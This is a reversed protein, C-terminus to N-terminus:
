ANQMSKFEYGADEVAKKVMDPTVSGDCDISASQTSLTVEADAVGPVAKLAKTVRAVCHECAMGSVHVTKKMLKEEEKDSYDKLKVMTLRLANLGVCVSSLSMLLAGAMPTLRFGFSSFAGAAVPIFIVNYIFAWFLNEKINAMTRRSMLLANACDGLNGKLLVVQCSEVAIDSTGAIGIGAEATAIAVSDNVGDGVMVAHEGQEELQRIIAAKDQPLLEARFDEIGLQAAVGEAVTRRDGTLMVPRVGMAKLDAIAQKASPRIEDAIVVEGAIKGDEIVLMVAQGLKEHVAIFAGDDDSLKAGLRDALSTNGVGVVRGDVRGTVGCGDILRFDEAEYNGPQYKRGFAQALPHGSKSELAAARSLAGQEDAGENFRTAVVSMRGTTLTGTKDFVFVTARRLTELAEPSKFLVGASASRGTGAVIALPTALGLACPCSIVLVCIAYNLSVAMGADMGFYWICFVAAAIALVAPTFVGAVRDAVRAIPAKKSNADDVLAIIKSLTTDAGVAEARMEVAGSSLISSSTIKSGPEKKVPVSEGTLASEDCYGSGSVVVGDVGVQEGAKIVLVDGKKADALPIQSTKGDRKVTVFKPALDYLKMVADATRVRTREEFYKGIAVFCLIGAASDFFVPNSGMLVDLGAGSPLTLFNCASYAFSVLSGLSVLTDMNSSGHRLARAASVYYRRQLWMICLALVGQVAASAFATSFPEFGFRPGLAVAMLVVLLAFSSLLARKRRKQETDDAKRVQEGAGSGAPAAGYGADEVAKIIASDQVNDGALLTMRNKVLMVNVDSVGPVKSVAKEVHSACAACTMGKIDFTKKLM